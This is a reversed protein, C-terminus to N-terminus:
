STSRESSLESRLNRLLNKRQQRLLLTEALVVVATLGFSGWVYFARGGMDFFEAVSNWHM